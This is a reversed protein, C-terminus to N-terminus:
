HMRGESLVIVGLRDFAADKWSLDVRVLGHISDNVYCLLMIIYMYTHIFRM